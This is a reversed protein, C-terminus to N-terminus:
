TSSNVRPYYRYDQGWVWVLGLVLSSLSSLNCDSVCPASLSVVSGSNQLLSDVLWVICQIILLEFYRRILALRIIDLFLHLHHHSDTVSCWSSILHRSLLYNILESKLLQMHSLYMVFKRKVQNLPCYTTCYVRATSGSTM